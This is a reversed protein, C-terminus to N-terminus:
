QTGDASISQSYIDVDQSNRADNWFFFAGGVKNALLEPLTQAGTATSIPLGSLIGPGVNNEWLRSGQSNIRQVYIDLEGNRLDSWAMIVGGNQDPIINLSSQPELATSILTDSSWTQQGLTSVRRVYVDDGTTEWSIIAGGDDDPVIKPNSSCTDDVAIRIGISNNAPMGPTIAWKPQGLENISQSFIDTMCTPFPPPQGVVYGTEWVINAGGNPNSAIDLEYLIHLIPAIVLGNYDGTGTGNEWLLRGTVGDLRQAIIKNSSNGTRYDNWVIIAGGLGDNTMYFYNEAQYTIPDSNYSSTIPRGKSSSTGWQLQGYTNIRQSTIAQNIRSDLWAIFAGGNKDSVVRPEHQSGTATSVPIGEFDFSATGNEWLKKGDSSVRQAYIDLNGNRADTWVIIAGGNNDSTIQPTNKAFATISVSTGNYDGSGAVNEWLRNGQSDIRQAYIDSNGNRSDSWVIIAGGNGDSIIQHDSQAGAQTTIPTNVPNSNKWLVSFPMENSPKNDVTVVVPGSQSEDDVQIRIENNSWDSGDVLIPLGNLTLTNLEQTDGFDSGVIRVIEGSRANKPQIGSINPGNTASPPLESSNNQCSALFFLSIILLINFNSSHNHM